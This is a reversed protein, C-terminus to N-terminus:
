LKRAELEAVHVELMSLKAQVRELLKKQVELDERAALDFRNFFASLLAQLNKELDQAPSNRLAESLRARLADLPNREDM